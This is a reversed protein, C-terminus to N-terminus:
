RARESEGGEERSGGATIPRACVMMVGWHGTEKEGPPTHTDGTERSKNHQKNALKFRSKVQEGKSEAAKREREDEHDPLPGQSIVKSTRWDLTRFLIAAALKHQIRGQRSGFM